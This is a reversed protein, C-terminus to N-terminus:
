DELKRLEVKRFEVPHSESQLSIYGKELLRPVGQEILKKGAPDNDDLQPESYSLVAVGDIRHEISKAGHVEIEVTVWQDGRYTKSTSDICHRTDLAGNMVVNTGPTCLNATHREGTPPGGLLQVEICVPFDQDKDMTEPPRCHIMVGSNRFAWGPGDPLQEGVFRYEVRLIYHSFPEKYFIHGFRNKFKNEYADYTVKLVGDEVRFTNGFNEGLAYGKIKPKWGELNKGNFLRIWEGEPAPAAATQRDLPLAFREYARGSAPICRHLFLEGTAPVMVTTHITTDRCLNNDPRIMLAAWDDVTEAPVSGDSLVKAVWAYKPREGEDITTIGPGKFGEGVYPEGPSGLIVGLLIGKEPERLVARSASRDVALCRRNAGDGMMIHMGSTGPTECLRTAMADLTADYQVAMRCSAMIPMGKISRDSDSNVTESALSLKKDNIATLVGVIAPFGVSLFVNGAAPHYEFVTTRPALKDPWNWDLNRAHILPKDAAEPVRVVNTCLSLSKLLEPYNEQLMLDVMTNMLFVADYPIEAGDAVGQMEQQLELPMFAHFQRAVLAIAPTIITKAGGPILSLLLGVEPGSGVLKTLEPQVMKVVEVMIENYMAHIERRLLKGHQYGMQYHDGALTIHFAGERPVRAAGTMLTAEDLGKTGELDGLAGRILIKEIGPGYMNMAVEYRGRPFEESTVFYMLHDDALGVAIPHVAGLARAREKIDLGIRMIAEGPLGMLWTAGIQIRHMASATPVLRGLISPPLAIKNFVVKIEPEETARISAALEIAPEALKKGFMVAREYNDKPGHDAVPSADGEAGNFFLVEPVGGFQERVADVLAGPWERSIQMDDGDTITPHATFNIVIAVPKGDRGDFRLATMARDMTASGRRNRNFGELEKSAVGFTAPRLAANAKVIAEAIGTSLTDFIAQTYFGAVPPALPSMIYGGCAAHSHSAAIMINESAIGIDAKQVLRCVERRLGADIACLDCAVLALRTTGSELVLARAYLDDHVGTSKKMDLGAWRAGYGALPVPGAPTIKVAAAGAQLAADAQNIQIAGWFVVLALIRLTM